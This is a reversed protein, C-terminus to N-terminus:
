GKVYGDLFDLVPTQWSTTQPSKSESLLKKYLTIIYSRIETKCSEEMCSDSNSDNNKFLSNVFNLADTESFFDEQFIASLMYLAGAVCNISHQKIFLVSEAINVAGNYIENLITDKESNSIIAENTAFIKRVFAYSGAVIAIHLSPVCLFHPDFTYIVWFHFNNKYHPRNTTSLRQNYVESASHYLTSLFDVFEACKQYRTNKPFSKKIMSLIRIFFGVFDLYIEVKEPVFPITDDLPHEVNVVPIKTRGFKQKQQIMFFNTWAEGIFKFSHKSTKPNIFHWFFTRVVSYGALPKHFKKSYKNKM